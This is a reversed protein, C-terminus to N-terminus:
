LRAACLVCLGTLAHACPRRACRCPLHATGVPTPGAPEGEGDCCLSAQTPVVPHWQLIGDHRTTAARLGCVCLCRYRDDATRRAGHRVKISLDKTGTPPNLLAAKVAGGGDRADILEQVRAQRESVAALRGADLTAEDYEAAM